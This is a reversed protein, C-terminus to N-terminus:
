GVSGIIEVGSLLVYRAHCGPFNGRLYERLTKIDFGHKKKLNHVYAAWRPGPNDLVACGRPGAQILEHLAWADRGKVMFAAGDALRRVLIIFKPTM